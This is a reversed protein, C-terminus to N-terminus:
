SVRVFINLDTAPALSCASARSAMGSHIGTAGAHPAPQLDIAEPMSPHAPATITVPTKDTAGECNLHHHRRIIREAQMRHSEHLATIAFSFFSGCSRALLSCGTVLLSRLIGRHPTEHSPEHKRSM